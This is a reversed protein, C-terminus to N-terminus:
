NLEILINKCSYVASNGQVLVSGVKLFKFREQNREYELKQNIDLSDPRRLLTADDIAFVV